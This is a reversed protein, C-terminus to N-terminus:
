SFFTMVLDHIEVKGSVSVAEQKLKLYIWPNSMRDMPKRVLRSIKLDADTSYFESGRRDTDLLCNNRPIDCRWIRFKRKLSSDMDKTHHIMASHGNQRSLTAFGHQYENWVELSSVPLEPEFKDDIIFGDNEMSARFELNTFLKDTQPEPNGVLTMWYGKEQGFFEGYTGQQHQWAKTESGNSTFWLSYDELVSFYPSLTYDYFSTFAQMRESWALCYEKNAFLVEQNLRDYFAKFNNRSSPYWQVGVAPLHQKMWSNFGGATSINNLEGSFLFINKGMSDIFYIGLPTSIISHKNSCGVTDSYYRKGQVKGSNAIEVPVNNETSIQVNENYLIQAIGTDQFCFLQDNLRIIKRIEGKNGDMELVSALTTNTWLDIDANSQKTKSWTIQNPYNVDRYFEDPMIKYSFFNDQQSYVPNILNFNQPTMNLNNIQGRNRDYRGDINIYTELMFSGIEVLQNTDEKTFPYTKLCDYRQFYTDGYDFSITAHHGKELVQPDGCPVWRHERLTDNNKNGYAVFSDPRRIEVIPLSDQGCQLNATSPLKCVIHPTSKYKMRVPSKKLVLDIYKEGTAADARHWGNDIDYRWYGKNKNSEENQSTSFTKWIKESNFETTIDAQTLGTDKDSEFSFYVGDQYDPVLVTDINGMYIDSGFKCVSVEDSSFLQPFTGSAFNGPSASINYETTSFRLNSIVKKKLVASATGKDTPRNIDNNLSGDKHWPFVFWKCSSRQNIYREVNGDRDDLAYDDYFSGAIIGLGAKDSFSKHIFGSGSNSITPSSTQIDIDSFTRQFQAEGVRKYQVGSLDSTAIYDNFEIDPSHLTLMGKSSKFRNAKDFDGQIEVHRINNPNSFRSLYPISDYFVTIKPATTGNDANEYTDGGTRFFWDSQAYIDKDYAQHQETYITTAAACQCLVVRDQPGPFVVLPRIKRYGIDYLRDVSTSNLVGTFVPVAISDVVNGIAPTKPLDGQEWEYDDLYVPESWKGTKYQFQIGLRYKNGRKFGGCPTSIQKNSDKYATLQNFYVYNFSSIVNCYITRRGFSVKFDEKISSKLNNISPRGLKINGLFLTDDKQELTGVKIEEGGKYLLETPDITDGGRGSDTYTVYEYGDKKSLESLRIDQVRRCFPTGNLSSRQISYIRLYEFNMDVHEVTINFINDAKDDPSCGRDAYSIYYLPTTHFINTEQGHQNYYTFAYQIVGPALVGGGGLVKQVSVTEQLQLTPVFDFQTDEGNQPSWQRIQKKINIVRPQNIHDTWYIKQVNDSEFSVLTELPYSSQFNLNGSYLEEVFYWAPNEGHPYIRYIRDKYLDSTNITFLIISHNITALGIPLGLITTDSEDETNLLRVPATGRENVWSMLTNGDNTSLRLNMNEFSFEPNFASVSLDQNMGKTKWSM